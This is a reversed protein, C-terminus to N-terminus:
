LVTERRLNRLARVADWFIRERDAWVSSSWYSFLKIKWLFPVTKSTFSRWFLRLLYKSWAFSEKYARGLDQNKYRKKLPMRHQGVFLLLEPVSVVRSSLAVEGSFVRDWNIGDPKPRVFLSDLFNKRYIGYMFHKVSYRSSFVKRCIEGQTLNNLDNEKELITTNCIEGDSYVRQYSSVALSARPNAELAAVLKEIFRKDWLDDDGGWMFYEGRAQRVVYEFNIVHGINKPHRIYRVRKDYASYEECLQQTNDTSGDDSIILEFDKYTQALLSDLSHRLLAARNYTPLGISVLGRQITM